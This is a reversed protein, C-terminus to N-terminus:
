RSCERWSATWRSTRGCRRRTSISFRPASSRPTTPWTGPSSSPRVRVRWAGASNSCNATKRRTLPSADQGQARDLFELARAGTLAMRDALVFDAFDGYGLLHAKERRLELIRGILPRNDFNGGTARTIFARYVQERIGADDLYMMLPTYSPAQLTFRWGEIGKQAASERAAALASPPLGALRGEENLVLEFANTADLVNESFRTTLRTLEVDIEALRAKGAPDLEAGHRRFDDLTKSLYRLRTGQLRGAEETAAYGQLAKWLGAHLPISTHFESVAPEVVNHAARLEPYTAVAELHKVVGMARDLPESLMDLRMLMNDFTPVEGGAGLAEVRERAEALLQRIGPEVHEARIRDFPVRFDIRLLPNPEAAM